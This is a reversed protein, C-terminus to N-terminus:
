RLVQGTHLRTRIYLGYGQSDYSAVFISSMAQPYLQTVREGLFVFAPVQGEMNPLESDLVTFYSPSDRPVRVRPQSRQRLGAVITFSLSM